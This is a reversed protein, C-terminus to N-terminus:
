RLISLKWIQISGDDKGAVIQRGDQSWVITNVGAEAENLTLLPQTSDVHRWHRRGAILSVDSIKEGAGRRDICRHIVASTSM